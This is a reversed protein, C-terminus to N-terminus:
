PATRRQEPTATPGAGYHRAEIANITESSPNGLVSKGVM